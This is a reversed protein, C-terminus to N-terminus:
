SGSTYRPVFCDRVIQFLDDRGADSAPSAIVYVRFEHYRQFDRPDKIFINRRDNGRATIHFLAGPFHILPSKAM